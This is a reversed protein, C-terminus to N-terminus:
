KSVGSSPMADPDHPVYALEGENGTGARGFQGLGTVPEHTGDVAPDVYRHFWRQLEGRLLTVIETRFPDDVLNRREDPDHTMDYLEHPGHPYRHVYKWAPTRIMRMPGYEDMIVIHDRDTSDGAHFLSAFSRGPLPSTIPMVLGVQDLLTHAFDYASVLGRRVVGAPIVEPHRVIAPVRISNDLM